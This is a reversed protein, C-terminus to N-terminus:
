EHVKRWWCWRDVTDCASTSSNHKWYCVPLQLSLNLSTVRTNTLPNLIRNVRLPHPGRHCWQCIPSCFYMYCLSFCSVQTHRLCLSDGMHQHQAGCMELKHRCTVVILFLMKMGFKLSARVLAYCGSPHCKSLIYKPYSNRNRATSQTRCAFDECYTFRFLWYKIESITNNRRILDAVARVGDDGIANSGLSFNAHWWLMYRSLLSSRREFSSYEISNLQM